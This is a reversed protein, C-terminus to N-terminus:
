FAENPFNITKEKWCSLISNLFICRLSSFAVPKTSSHTKRRISQKMGSKYHSYVTQKSDDQSFVETRTELALWFDQSSYAM